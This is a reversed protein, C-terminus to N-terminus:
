VLSLKTDNQAYYPIKDFIVYEMVDRLLSQNSIRKIDEPRRPIYIFRRWVHMSYSYKWVRKRTELKRYDSMDPRVLTDREIRVLEPHKKILQRPKSVSYHGWLNYVEKKGYTKYEELWISLFRSTKKAIIVGNSLASTVLGVGQTHNYHRLPDLSRLAIVDNDIYTGGYEKLLLLRMIDSIHEVYRPKEGFIRIERMDYSLFRIKTTVISTVYDWWRGKPQNNKNIHVMIEEPRWNKHVSIFSVAYLFTFTYTGNLDVWIYHVINPVLSDNTTHSSREDSPLTRAPNHGKWSDDHKRIGSYTNSTTFVGIKFGMFFVLLVILLRVKKKHTRM